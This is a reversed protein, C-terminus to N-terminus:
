LLISRFRPRFDLLSKCGVAAPTIARRRPQFRVNAAHDDWFRLRKRPIGVFWRKIIRQDWRGAGCNEVATLLLPGGIVIYFLLCPWKACTVVRVGQSGQKGEVARPEACRKIKSAGSSSVAVAINSRRPACPFTWVVVALAKLAVSISLTSAFIPPHTAAASSCRASSKGHEPRHRDKVSPSGTGAPFLLAGSM